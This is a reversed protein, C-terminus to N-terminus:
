TNRRLSGIMGDMYYRQQLNRQYIERGSIEIKEQRRVEVNMREEFEEL